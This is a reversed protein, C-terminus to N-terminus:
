GSLIDTYVEPGQPHKLIYSFRQNQLKTDMKTAEANSCGGCDLWNEVMTEHHIPHLLFMDVSDM